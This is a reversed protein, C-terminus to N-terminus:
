DKNKKCKPGHLPVHTQPDAVKRWGMEHLYRSVTDAYRRIDTEPKDWFFAHAVEHIQTNMERRDSMGPRIYIMPIDDDPDACLGDIARGIRKDPKKLYSYYTVGKTNTFAFPKQNLKLPLVYKDKRM